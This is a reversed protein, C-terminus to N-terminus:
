IVIHIINRMFQKFDKDDELSTKVKLTNQAHISSPPTGRRIRKNWYSRNFYEHYAIDEVGNSALVDGVEKYDEQNYVWTANQILHFIKMTAVSGKPLSLSHFQHFIDRTARTFIRYKTEMQRKEIGIM